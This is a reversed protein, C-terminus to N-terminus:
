LSNRHEMLQKQMKSVITSYEPNESVNVNEDQDRKHDYLMRTGDNWESYAYREITVSEGGYYRSFVAKKWDKSPKKLLPM